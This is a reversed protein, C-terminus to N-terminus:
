FGRNFDSSVKAHKFKQELFDLYNETIKVNCDPAIYHNELLLNYNDKTPIEICVCENVIELDLRLKVGHFLLLLLILLLHHVSTGPKLGFIKSYPASVHVSFV